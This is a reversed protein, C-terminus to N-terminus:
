VWGFALVKYTLSTVVPALNSISRGKFQNVKELEPKM